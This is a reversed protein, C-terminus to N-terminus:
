LFYVGNASPLTTAVVVCVVLIALCIRLHTGNEATLSPHMVYMDDRYLSFRRREVHRFHHVSNRATTIFNHTGM